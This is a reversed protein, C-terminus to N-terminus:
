PKFTLTDGGTMPQEEGQLFKAWGQDQQAEREGTIIDRTAIEQATAVLTTHVQQLQTNMLGLQENSAQIAQMQGAASQSHLQIAAQLATYNQEQGQQVGLTRALSNGSNGLTTQWMAFQNSLQKPTMSVSNLYSGANNLRGMIGGASGTLLSASNALNRVQNIDGQVNAWMSQPIAVTNQVMLAYRQLDNQLQAVSNLKEEVQNAYDILQQAFTSCNACIDGVGFVAGAPRPNVFLLPIAALLALRNM